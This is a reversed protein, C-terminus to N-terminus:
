DLAKGTVRFCDDLTSWLIIHDTTDFAAALDLLISITVRGDDTLSPFCNHIKLFAPESSLFKRYTSQYLNSTNSSNTHSNLRGAVVKM